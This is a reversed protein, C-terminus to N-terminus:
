MNKKNTKVAKECFLCTLFKAQVSSLSIFTKFTFSEFLLFIFSSSVKETSGTSLNRTEQLKRKNITVIRSSKLRHNKM